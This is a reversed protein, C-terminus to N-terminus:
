KTRKRRATKPVPLPLRGTYPFDGNALHVNAILHGLDDITQAEDHNSVKRVFTAAAELTMRLDEETNRLLERLGSIEEEVLQDRDINFGELLSSLYIGPPQRTEPDACCLRAISSIHTRQLFDLNHYQQVTSEYPLSLNELREQCSRASPRDAPNQNVMTMAIDGLFEWGPRIRYTKLPLSKYIEQSSPNAQLPSFGSCLAYMLVTIGLSWIDVSPQLTDVKNRKRGKRPITGQLVEPASFQLAGCYQKTVEDVAM